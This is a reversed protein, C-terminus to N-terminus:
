RRRRGFRIGANGGMDHRTECRPASECQVFQNRESSFLSSFTGALACRICGMLFCANLGHSSVPGTKCYFAGSVDGVGAM